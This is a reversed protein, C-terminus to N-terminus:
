KSNMLIEETKLVEKEFEKTFELEKIYVSESVVKIGKGYGKYLKQYEEVAEEQNKGEIVVKVKGHNKTGFRDIIFYYKAM